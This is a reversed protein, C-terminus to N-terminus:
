RAWELSDRKAEYHAGLDLAIAQECLALAGQFDGRAIRAQIGREFCTMAELRDRYGHGLDAEMAPLNALALTVAEDVADWRQLQAEAEAVLDYAVAKVANPLSMQGGLTRRLYKLAPEPGTFAVARHGQLVDELVDKVSKRVPEVRKAM